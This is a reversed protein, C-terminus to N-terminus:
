RDPGGANSIVAAVNDLGILVVRLQIVLVNGSLVWAGVRGGLVLVFVEVPVVVVLALPGIEVPGFGLLIHVLAADFVSRVPHAVKAVVIERTLAGSVM